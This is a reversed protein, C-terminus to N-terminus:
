DQGVELQNLKLCNTAGRNTVLPEAEYELEKGNETTLKVVKRACNILVMHKSLWDMGFIVDIKKSDLIILNAMFDVWRIKINVKPCVQRAPMDGSLSIVVMRCKLLSVPLNYKAIYTASIFSHSTESDFLIIAINFKVLFMSLVVDPADQAEEIAVHNIRGRAFNQRVTM